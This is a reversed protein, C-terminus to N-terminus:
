PSSAVVTADRTRAPEVDLHLLASVVYLLYCSMSVDDPTVATPLLVAGLALTYSVVFVFSRRLSRTNRLGRLHPVVLAACMACKTYVGSYLRGQIRRRRCRIAPHSCLSSSKRKHWCASLKFVPMRRLCAFLLVAVYYKQSCALLRIGASVVVVCAERWHKKWGFVRLNKAPVSKSDREGGNQIGYDFQFFFVGRERDDRLCRAVAKRLM